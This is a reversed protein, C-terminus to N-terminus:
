AADAEEEDEDGAGVAYGDRATLRRTRKGSNIHQIMLLRLLESAQGASGSLRIIEPDNVPITAIKKRLDYPVAFRQEKEGEWFDHHGSLVRVLATLFGGRLHTSREKYALNRLGWCADIFGWFEKVNARALPLGIAKTLNNASRFIDKLNTRNVAALHAHLLLSHKAYALASILEEKAMAHSWCVKGYLAFDRDTKSLGYLNAILESHTDKMNRLIVSPAVKTQYLNLAHFLERESDPTTNFHVTAGMRIKEAPFRQSYEIATGRRQQGDIIYVPDVLIVSGDDAVQFHDGRMGLVIDPLRGGSEFATRIKRRAGFSLEERQYAGDIRLNELTDVSVVGRLVTERGQDDLSPRMIMVPAFKKM